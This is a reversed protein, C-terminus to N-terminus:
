EKLRRVANSKITGIRASQLAQTVAAKVQRLPGCTVDAPNIKGRRPAMLRLMFAYKLIMFLVGSTQFEM